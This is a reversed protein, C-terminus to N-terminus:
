EALGVAELAEARTQFWVVRTVRGERFSWVGFQLPGDIEAGSKRGRARYRSVSVVHEGADILEECTTDFNEFADRLERDFSRMIALGDHGAWSTGGLHEALTDASWDIEVDADYLALITERDRRAVAEYIRRVVEVHEQSM